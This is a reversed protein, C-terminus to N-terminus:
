FIDLPVRRRMQVATKNNNSTARRKKKKKFLKEQEQIFRFDNIIQNYEHEDKVIKERLNVYNMLYVKQKLKTVKHRNLRIVM